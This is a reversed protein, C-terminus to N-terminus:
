ILPNTLNLFFLNFTLVIWSLKFWSLHRFLRVEGHEFTKLM